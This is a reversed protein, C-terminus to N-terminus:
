SSQVAHIHPTLNEPLDEALDQKQFTAVVVPPEYACPAELGESVTVQSGSSMSDM